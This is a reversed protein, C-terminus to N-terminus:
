GLMHEGCHLTSHHLRACVAVNSIEVAADPLEPGLFVSFVYAAVFALVFSFGFKVAPNAAQLDEDSLGALAQWKKGFLIPSYWLGGLVFASFAAATVALINVDM